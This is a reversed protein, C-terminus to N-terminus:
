SVKVLRLYGFGGPWTWARVAVRLGGPWKWGARRNLADKGVEGRVMEGARGAVELGGPSQPCRKWGTRRKLVCGWASPGAGM